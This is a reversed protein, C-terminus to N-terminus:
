QSEVQFKCGLERTVYKSDLHLQEGQFEANAHAPVHPASGQACTPVQALSGQALHSLTVSPKQIFHGRPLRQPLFGGTFPNYEDM